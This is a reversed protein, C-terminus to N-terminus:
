VKSLETKFSWLWIAVPFSYVIMMWNNFFSGTPVFPFLTILIACLLGVQFNSLEKDKNFVKRLLHQFTLYLFYLFLSFIFLFGFIGTEALLQIYTNHPHTNCSYESIQYKKCENRFNKVGIGFLRNDLFINFGTKHIDDLPKSFIYKKDSNSSDIKSIGLQQKTKEIMRKNIKSDTLVYSLIIILFSVLISFKLFKLNKMLITLFILSTVFYLFAVREGSIFILSGTFILVFYVLYKKIQSKLLEKHFLIFLSVYIPFFRATYSGLIYESGFFSSVRINKSIPWGFINYDMFYQIHGDIILIFYCFTFCYFIHKLVNKNLSIIFYFALTFIVFRIFTISSKLSYFINESIISTFILYLYFIIFIKFFFNNFISFDKKKFCYLLFIISVCVVSLDPLFPGTILLFPILSILISPFKIYFFIKDQDVM